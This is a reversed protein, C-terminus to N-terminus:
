QMKNLIQRVKSIDQPSVQWFNDVRAKRAARWNNDQKLGKKDMDRKECKECACARGEYACGINMLEEHCTVCVHTVVGVAWCDECKKMKILDDDDFGIDFDTHNCRHCRPENNMEKMVAKKVNAKKVATKNVKTKPTM